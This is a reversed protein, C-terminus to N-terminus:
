VTVTDTIVLSHMDKAQISDKQIRPVENQSQIQFHVKQLEEKRVAIVQEKSNLKRSRSFTRTTHYKANTNIVFTAEAKLVNGQVKM